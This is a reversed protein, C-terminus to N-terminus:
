TVSLSVLAQLPPSQGSELLWYLQILFLIWAGRGTRAQIMSGWAIAWSTSSTPMMSHVGISGGPPGAPGLLTVHGVNGRQSRSM